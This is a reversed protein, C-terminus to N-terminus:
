ITGLNDSYDGKNIGENQEISRRVRRLYNHHDIKSIFHHLAYFSKVKCM